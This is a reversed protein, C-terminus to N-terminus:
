IGRGETSNIIDNITQLKASESHGFILPRKMEDRIAIVAEEATFKKTGDDTLILSDVSVEGLGDLGEEGDIWVMVNGESPFGIIYGTKGALRPHDTTMRFMSGPAVGLMRLEENIGDTRNEGGWHICNDWDEAGDIPMDIKVSLEIIKYGERILHVVTGRSGEPVVFLPERSVDEVLEVRAGVELHMSVLPLNYSLWSALDRINNSERRMVWGPDVDGTKIDPFRIAIERWFANEAAEIADSMRGRIHEPLEGAYTALEGDTITGM